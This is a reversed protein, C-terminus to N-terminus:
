CNKPPCSMYADPMQANPGVSWLFDRDDPFINYIGTDVFWVYKPNPDLTREASLDNSLLQNDQSNCQVEPGCWATPADM